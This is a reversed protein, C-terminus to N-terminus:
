CLIWINKLFDKFLSCGRKVFVIDLLEHYVKSSKCFIALIWIARLFKSDFASDLIESFEDYSKILGEKSSVNWENWLYLGGLFDRLANNIVSKVVDFLTQNVIKNHLKLVM